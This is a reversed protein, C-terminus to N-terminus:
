DEQKTRDIPEYIVRNRQDVKVVFRKGKLSGLKKELRKPMVVVISDPNGVAYAKAIAIIEEIM